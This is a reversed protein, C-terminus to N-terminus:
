SIQLSKPLFLMQADNGHYTVCPFLREARGSREGFFTTFQMMRLSFKKNQFQLTAYM